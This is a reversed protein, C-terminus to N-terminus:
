LEEVKYVFTGKDPLNECDKLTISYDDDTFGEDVEDTQWFISAIPYTSGHFFLTDTKKIILELTILISNYKKSKGHVTGIYTYLSGKFPWFTIVHLMRRRGKNEKSCLVNMDRCIFDHGRLASVQKATFLKIKPDYHKIFHKSFLSIDKINLDNLKEYLNNRIYIEMYIMDTLGKSLIPWDIMDETINDVNSTLYSQLSQILRTRSWSPINTLSDVSKDFSDYFHYYLYNVFNIDADVMRRWNDQLYNLQCRKIENPMLWMDSMRVLDLFDNPEIVKTKDALILFPFGYLYSLLEKAMSLNDVKYSDKTSGVQSCLLGKFFPNFMLMFTNVYCVQGKEDYITFNSFDPNNFASKFCDTFSIKNSTSAM